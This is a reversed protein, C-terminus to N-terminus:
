NYNKNNNTETKTKTLCQESHKWKDDWDSDSGPVMLINM